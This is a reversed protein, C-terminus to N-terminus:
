LSKFSKSSKSRDSPSKPHGQPAWKATPGHPWPTLLLCGGDALNSRVEEVMSRFRGRLVSSLLGPKLRNVIRREFTYITYITFSLIQYYLGENGPM